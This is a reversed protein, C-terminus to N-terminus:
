KKLNSKVTNFINEHTMGRSSMQMIISILNSMKSEDITWSPEAYPVYKLGNAQILEDLEMIEEYGSKEWAHRHMHKIIDKKVEDPESLFTVYSVIRGTSDVLNM